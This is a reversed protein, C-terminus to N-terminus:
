KLRYRNFLRQGFALFIGSLVMIGVLKMWMDSISLGRSLDVTVSFYRSIIPINGWINAYILIFVAALTWLINRTILILLFGCTGYFCSEVFMMLVFPLITSSDLVGIVTMTICTIINLLQFMILFVSVRGMGLIKRSYACSFMVEAGEDEVFPYFAIIVWWSAFAPIFQQFFNLISNIFNGAIEEPSGSFIYVAYGSFLLVMLIPIFGAFSMAKIDLAMMRIFRRM